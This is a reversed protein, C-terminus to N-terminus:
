RVEFDLKRVKRQRRSEQWVLDENRLVNNTTKQAYGNLMVVMSLDIATIRTNNVITAMNSCGCRITRASNGEVEKGCSRCRIRLNEM